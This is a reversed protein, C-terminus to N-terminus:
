ASVAEGQLFASLLDGVAKTEVLFADHGCRSPVNVYTVAKGNKTLARAFDACEKPPYLWDSEFSAVLLKSEIRKCAALLDGKGWRQAADFYDMARTIYLYSNPDFREVFSRGQHDLYSEVEFEIGFGRAKGTQSRVRRGFKGHMVKDSLYTIHALMRAAALGSAVPDKGTYDGGNFNPDNMICYRGVANFALGQASLRASAALVVAREVRKPYALAWEIAQQGGLSGGVVAYLKRIKLADLLSAQLRVWDGVTVMPFRLGYPRRTSPDPSAPGTTGYCSGLFNSCIVFFRNTDIAKGPGIMPDWWGPKDIRWTRGQAKAKADWGAAHADGSLGHLILVANDRKKSLRGYTEYEVTVPGIKGGFELKLPQAETYLRISKGHTQGVSDPAHARSQKRTRKQTPM